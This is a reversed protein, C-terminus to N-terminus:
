YKKLHFSADFFILTSFIMIYPFMGIPFLFRTLLHFIVVLLFAFNRLKKSLLLFPIILDYIMGSWSLLYHFWNQQSLYNGIIPLDYKSTIWIKLPMAKFLWDSNIKAFGAYFYVIFIFIKIADIQWKYVNISEKKQFYNDLSFYASCPIFILLFSLASIFYYHNLYTTKDILELYTFSLFFIFISFRFKYGVTILITTILCILFVFYVFNGYPKVWNFGYYTFHFQPQTYLTEIWGKSWFRILSFLMLLGFFIRFTSLKYAKDTKELYSKIQPTM